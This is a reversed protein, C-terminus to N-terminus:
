KEAVIHHYSFVGQEIADAQKLSSLMNNYQVSSILGLSRLFKSLSYYRRCTERLNRYSKIVHETVDKNKFSTFGAKMAQNYHEPLTDLDPIAWSIFIEKLITEKSENMPRENRLYEAMVLKGGPKLVRFAEKYFDLKNNAHCVSEFAWVVDLSNDPFPMNLYDAILFDVNKVPHKLLRKQITEVQRPVITIGTVIADYHKSLWETSHGLGCGADVIKSGKKIGAWEALVENARLIAQRHNTAKNDYYGFHLAPTTKLKWNWILGYEFQTDTYYKKIAETHTSSM